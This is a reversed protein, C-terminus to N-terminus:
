DPTMFEDKKEEDQEEDWSEEPPEQQTQPPEVNEEPAPVPGIEEQPKSEGSLFSEDFLSSEPKDPIMSLDVGGIVGDGEKTEGAKM